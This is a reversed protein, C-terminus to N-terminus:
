DIIQHLLWLQWQVVLAFAFFFVALFSGARIKTGWIYNNKISLIIMIGASTLWYKVMFFLLPSRNLYYAMIPNLEEGGRSVLDITLYSDAVGLVIIVLVEALTRPRHHFTFSIEAM